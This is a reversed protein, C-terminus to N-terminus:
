QKAVKKERENKEISVQLARVVRQPVGDDIAQQAMTALDKQWGSGTRSVRAMRGLWETQARNLSKAAIPLAAGAAGATIAMAPGVSGGAAAGAAGSMIPIAAGVVRGFQRESHYAKEDVHKAVDRVRIAASLHRNTERLSELSKALEPRATAADDMRKRLFDDAMDHLHNVIDARETEALSGMTKQEKLLLQTVWDRAEAHSWNKKGGFQPGKDGRASAQAKTVDVIDDRVAGLADRVAGTNTKLQLEGIQEDVHKILDRAPIMGAKEDFQRYIPAVQPAIEDIVKQAEDALQEKPGTFAKRFKPYKDGTEVVMAAVQDNPVARRRAVATGGRTVDQGTQRARAKEANRGTKLAGIGAAAGAFGLAVAADKAAQGWEKDDGTLEANSAALGTALTEGGALAVRGATGTTKLAALPPVFLSAGVAALNQTQDKAATTDLKREENRVGRYVDGISKGETGATPGIGTSRKVYELVANAGGVIEDSLPNVAQQLNRGLTTFGHGVAKAAGIPDKTAAVVEGPLNKIKQIFGIDDTTSNVPQVQAGSNTDTNVPASAPQGQQPQGGQANPQANLPQAGVNPANGGGGQQPQGGEEASLYEWWNRPV